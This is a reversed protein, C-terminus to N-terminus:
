YKVYSKTTWRLLSMPDGITSEDMLSDLAEKIGPQTVEIGKRGAGAKRIRSSNDEQQSGYYQGTELEKMGNRLTAHACVLIKASNQRFFEIFRGKKDQENQATGM